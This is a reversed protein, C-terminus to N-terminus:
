VRRDAGMSARLRRNRLRLGEPEGQIQWVRTYTNSRGDLTSETTEQGKLSVVIADTGPPCVIRKPSHGDGDQWIGVSWSQPEYGENARAVLARSTLTLVSSGPDEALGLSYRAAWRQEVQPGDMLLVFVLNPGVARLPEHVPDSRALDECIMVTFVSSGRFANVHIERHNLSIHEWYGGDKSHPLAAQLGYREIQYRNLMWRHHKGRSMSAMKRKKGEEFFHTALAFNGSAGACNNSSGAVLFEVDPHRDRLRRALREYTKWNLSLEPLIIGNIPKNAAAILQEIFKVIADPGAELWRQRVNFWGSPKPAREWGKSTVYFDDDAAVYPFPVLLLNLPVDDGRALATFPAQWHVGMEKRSPLMALNHSMNRLAAGVNPTRAKAQVCVVDPDVIDTTISVITHAQIQSRGTKKTPEPTVVDRVMKAIWHSSDASGLYGVDACAEDAIAMLAYATRWWAPLHRNDPRELAIPHKESSRILRSWLAQVEDPPENTSPGAAWRRAIRSWREREEAAIRVTREPAKDDGTDMIIHHYAGSLHLLYACVAFLDPPLEPVSEYTPPQQRQRQRRRRSGNPMTRQIVQFVTLSPVARSPGRTARTRVM